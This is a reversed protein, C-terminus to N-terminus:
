RHTRAFFPPLLGIALGTICRSAVMRIAHTAAGVVGTQGIGACGRVLRSTDPLADGVGTFTVGSVMLIGAGTDDVLGTGWCRTPTLAHTIIGAADDGTLAVWPIGARITGRTIGCCAIVIVSQTVAGHVGAQWVRACLDGVFSLTHRTAGAVDTFAGRAIM